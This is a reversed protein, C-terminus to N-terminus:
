LELIVASFLGYSTVSRVGFAEPVTVLYPAGDGLDVEYQPDLVLDFQSRVLALGIKLGKALRYDVGLENQSGQVRGVYTELRSHDNSFADSRRTEYRFRGGMSKQGALFPTLSGLPLGFKIRTGYDTFRLMQSSDAVVGKAISRSFYAGYELCVVQFPAYFVNGSVTSGSFAATKWQDPQGSDEAQRQESQTMAESTPLRTTGIAYSAGIWGVAKSSGGGTGYLTIALFSLAKCLRPFAAM